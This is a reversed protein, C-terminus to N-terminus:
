CFKVQTTNLLQKSFTENFVAVLTKKLISIDESTVKWGNETTTLSTDNNFAPFNNNFQLTNIPLARLMFFDLHAWLLYLCHETVFVCLKLENQKELIREGLNTHQAQINVDLSLNPLSNRQRVYNDYTFKERNHFLVCNKM